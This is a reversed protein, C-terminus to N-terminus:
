LVYTSLKSIFTLLSSYQTNLVRQRAVEAWQVNSNLNKFAGYIIKCGDFPHNRSPLFSDSLGLLNSGMVADMRNTNVSLYHLLYLSTTAGDRSLLPRVVVLAPGRVFSITLILAREVVLTMLLPM